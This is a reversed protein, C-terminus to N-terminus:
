TIQFWKFRLSSKSHPHHTSVPDWTNRALKLSATHGSLDNFQKGGAEGGLAPEVSTHVVM